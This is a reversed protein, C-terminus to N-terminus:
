LQNTILTTQHNFDISSLTNHVLQRVLPSVLQSVSLAIELTAKAVSFQLLLLLVDLVLIQKVLDVSISCYSVCMQCCPSQSILLFILSVPTDFTSLLVFEPFGSRVVFLIVFIGGTVNVGAETGTAGSSEPETRINLLSTDFM